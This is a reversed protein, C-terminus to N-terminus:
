FDEPISLLNCEIWTPEDKAHFLSFSSLLSLKSIHSSVKKIQKGLKLSKLVNLLRERNDKSIHGRSGVEFCILDCTYGIDHLDNVLSAYKNMKDAHRKEVNLEFPVTLEFIVIKKSSNFCIVLDPRCSTPLIHYPITTKSHGPLDVNISLTDCVPSKSLTQHIYQLVNNHRWTYREQDLMVKCGNLVHHLTQTNGCLKCKGSMRKGWRRLNTFTPLSDIAARVVFSLVKSPLNYIISKWSLDAEEQILLELFKGQVTLSKIKEHWRNQYQQAVSDKINSKVKDWNEASSSATDAIEAAAVNGYSKRQYSQERRITAEMCAQVREDAKTQCHAVALAHCESYLQSILPIDLGQKSHLIASTAGRSPINLWKKIYKTTVSDLSDRQSKTLDHVTLLFRISQLMYKTYVRLKYEGRVLSSDINSLMTTIKQRIKTFVESSTGSFTIWSGLFKEASDKVLTLQKGEITYPIPKAQGSCISLTKCKSPKLHLDMSKTIRSIENMLKQHKLKNNTVLIFDDAYPLTIIHQDNLCYGHSTEFQKLYQVIPNFVLIFLIPSLPDGQFTGKKFRFPESKWGPGQVYGTLRSYLNGVHQIVPEPLGNRELTHLILNHSVSGFADALDFFTVHVTRKRNRADAVIETLCRAHEVCGNLDPLFAKQTTNDILHNALLYDITRNALVQHFLKGVCSTLAIMRFNGPDTNEGAKYLLTVRCQSWCEPPDGYLLQKSFMTALFRHTTPLKRLLGYLIGDDGPSSKAKKSALINKLNKPRVPSLDFSSQPIPIWPFWNLQAPDVYADKSYKLPYYADAQEKTFGPKTPPTTLTGDTCKKAFSYFNEKYLKEQHIATKNRDKEKQAKNLYSVTKVAERFAKRDEETADKGYAKKRLVNKKRKAEALTKPEHNQYYNVTEELVLDPKSAFYENLAKSFQEGAAKPSMQDQCLEHYMPAIVDSLESNYESWQNTPLFPIDFKLASGSHIIVLLTVILYSYIAM